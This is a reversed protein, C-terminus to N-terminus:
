PASRARVRRVVTPLVIALLAGGLLVLVVILAAPLPNRGLHGGIDAAPALPRGLIVDGEGGHQSAGVLAEHEPKNTPLLARPGNAASDSFQQSPPPSGGGSSGGGAPPAAAPGDNNTSVDSSLARDLVDGCDSYEQADTPMNDRAKQLQSPTYHGELIGDDICDRLIKTTTSDARAAPAFVLAAVLALVLLVTRRMPSAV